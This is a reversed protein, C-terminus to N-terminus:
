VQSPRVRRRIDIAFSPSPEWHFHGHRRPGDDCVSWTFGQTLEEVFLTATRVVLSAAVCQHEDIGFPAYEDASYSRELFRAPRFADPERFARPDRHSERLLVAVWSGRPVHFGEFAVADVARRNLLEAQDMRLTELVCAEALKTRAAGDGGLESVLVPDEGLYKLLWRFLDRVDHHGREVMYIANGIVTEDISAAHSAVLRQLVSDGFRAGGGREMGRVIEAVISRITGFAEKQQPGVIAVHGDPGLRRYANALRAVSADGARLGFVMMLLARLAITDLAEYLRRARPEGRGTDEALWALECTMAERLERQRAAVIDERFAALFLRRYAPHVSPSMSRLYDAPVLAKIDVTTPRVAGRHQTLLRRGLPIGVVCVKLHGSGWFLKFIPGYRRFQKLYFRDDAYARAPCSAGLSGPPLRGGLGTADRVRLRMRAAHWAVRRVAHTAPGALWRLLERYQM